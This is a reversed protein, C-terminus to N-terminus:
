LNNSKRVLQNSWADEEEEGNLEDTTAWSPGAQKVQRSPGVRRVQKVMEAKKVQM